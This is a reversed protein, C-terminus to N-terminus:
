GMRKELMTKARAEIMPGLHLGDVVVRYPLQLGSVHDKVRNDPEHYTRITETALVPKPQQSQHWAVIKQALIQFAEAQNRHRERHSTGQTRFGTALHTIRCCNQTKNRNQGGPGTGSFWSIDFDKRTLHLDPLKNSICHGTPNGSNQKHDM